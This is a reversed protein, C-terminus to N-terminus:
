LTFIIVSAVAGGCAAINTLYLKRIVLGAEAPITLGTAGAAVAIADATASNVRVTIAQDTIIKLYRCPGVGRERGAAVILTFADWEQNPVGGAVTVTRNLYVGNITGAFRGHAM